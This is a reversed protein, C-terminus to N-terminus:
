RQYIYCSNLHVINGISEDNPRHFSMLQVLRIEICLVLLILFLVIHHVIVFYEDSAFKPSRM